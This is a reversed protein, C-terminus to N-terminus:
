RRLRFPPLETPGEKVVASLRSTAPSAYATPLLSIGEEGKQLLMTVAYKGAPAGDDAKYTSLTFFGADDTKGFSAVPKEEGVPHFTVIIGRVPKDNVLVQGKVPFTPKAGEPLKPGSCASVLTLCVFLFALFTLRQANRLLAPEVNFQAVV